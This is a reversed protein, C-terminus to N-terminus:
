CLVACQVLSCCLVAGTCVALKNSAYVVSLHAEPFAHKLLPVITKITAHVYEHLRPASYYQEGGALETSYVNHKDYYVLSQSKSDWRCTPLALNCPTTSRQLTHPYNSDWRSSQSTLYRGEDFLAVAERRLEACRAASLFGDCVAWGHPSRLGDIIGPAAKAVTARVHRMFDQGDEVGASHARSAIQAPRLGVLASAHQFFIRTSM